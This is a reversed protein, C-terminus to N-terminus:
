QGHEQQRKGTLFADLDEHRIRWRGGMKVAPLRGGRIYNYITRRTVQLIEQVKELSYVKIEQM